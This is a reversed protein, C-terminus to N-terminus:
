KAEEKVVKAGKANRRVSDIGNMCSPKATYGESALIIEGNKATLRFRFEGKKDAYVEFKPAKAKKYGESTQDELAAKPANTEVSKIGNECAAESNYVESTGIVQGNGAKLVFHCGAKSKKICFKGMNIMREM